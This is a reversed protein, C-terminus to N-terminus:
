FLFNKINTPLVASTLIPIDQIEIVDSLDPYLRFLKGKKIDVWLLSNTHHCWIPSEGLEAQPSRIVKTDFAFISKPM